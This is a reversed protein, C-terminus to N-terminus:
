IIVIDVKAGLDEFLERWFRRHEETQHRIDRLRRIYFITVEVGDMNTPRFAGYWKTTKYRAFTPPPRRGTQNLGATNQLMDSIIILRKGMVTSSASGSFSHAAVTGLAEILNTTTSNHANAAQELCEMAHDRFNRRWQEKAVVRNVRLAPETSGDGPNVLSKPPACIKGNDMVYIDVRAGQPFKELAVGLENRIRSKPLAEIPDTVDILIAAIDKPADAGSATGGSPQLWSPNRLLTGGAAALFLLFLTL